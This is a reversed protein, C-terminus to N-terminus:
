STSLSEKEVIKTLLKLDAYRRVAEDVLTMRSDENRSFLLRGRTFVHHKFPLPAENLVQIDIPVGVEVSVEASLDVAYRFAESPRRIWVAVDVDRFSSMEMFSGHVYAFVVEDSSELRRRLEGLLRLREVDSLKRWKLELGAAGDVGRM